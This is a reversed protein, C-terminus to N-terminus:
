EFGNAFVPGVGALQYARANLYCELNTYGMLGMVTTQVHSPQM